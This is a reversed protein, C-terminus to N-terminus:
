NLKLHVVRAKNYKRLFVWSTEKAGDALRVEIKFKVSDCKILDELIEETKEVAENINSGLHYLM